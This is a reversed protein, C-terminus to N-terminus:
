WRGCHPAEKLELGAQWSGKHFPSIYIQHASSSVSFLLAAQKRSEGQRRTRGRSWQPQSQASCSSDGRLLSVSTTDRACVRLFTGAPSIEQHGLSGECSSAWHYPIGAPAAPHCLVSGPKTRQSHFRDAGTVLSLIYNILLTVIPFRLRQGM